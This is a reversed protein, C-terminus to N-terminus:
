PRRSAIPEIPEGGVLYLADEYGGGFDVRTIASLLYRTSISSWNANTGIERLVLRGARIELMRGIYCEDPRRQEQHIVILPAIRSATRVIEEISGVRVRPTRPKKLGRRKLAAEVFGANPAPETHRVDRIRLVEFGNYRIDDDVYAILFWEDGLTLVYCEFRRPDFRREIRVLLRHKMAYLLAAHTKSVRTM